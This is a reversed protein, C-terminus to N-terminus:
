FNLSNWFWGPKPVAEIGKKETEHNKGTQAASTAKLRLFPAAQL